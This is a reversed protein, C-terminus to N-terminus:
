EDTRRLRYATWGALGSLAAFVGFGPGDTATRDANTGNSASTGVATDPAATTPTDTPSPSNTTTDTTTTASTTSTTPSDTPTATTTTTASPTDTATATTSPSDIATDARTTSPTETTASTETTTTTENTATTGTSPETTTTGEAASANAARGAASEVGEGTLMWALTSPTIVRLDDGKSRVHEMTERFASTSVRDNDAGVTHYMIALVQSNATAADIAEITTEVDDGNVRGVSLPDDIATERRNPGGFGIAFYERTVDAVRQSYAGYPYVISAAEEAFGRDLLWQRSERCQTAIGEDSLSTFNPHGSMSHSGIEWGASQLERLQELESPDDGTSSIRDCVVAVLAPYGFEQLVPFATGYVSPATHDFTLLVHGTEPTADAQQPVVPSRSRVRKGSTATVSAGVGIVGATAGLFRRRTSGTNAM